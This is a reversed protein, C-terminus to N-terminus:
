ETFAYQYEVSREVSTKKGDKDVLEDKSDNIEATLELYKPLEGTKEKFAALATGISYARYAYTFKSRTVTEGEADDVVHSIYFKLKTDTAKIDPDYSLVFSHKKVESDEVSSNTVKVWYPMTLVITNKDYYVLSSQQKDLSYLPNTPETKTKTLSENSKPDICLPTSLLTVPISTSNATVQSQDYQCSIMYMNGDLFGLETTPVLKTTADGMLFSGFNYKVPVTMTFIHNDDGKLCSTVSMGMVVAMLAVLFSRVQKMFM